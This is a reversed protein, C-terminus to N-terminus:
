SRKIYIKIGRLSPGSDGMHYGVPIDGKFLIRIIICKSGDGINSDRISITETSLSSSFTGRGLTTSLNTTLDYQIIEVTANPTLQSNELIEISGTVKFGKPIIKIANLYASKAYDHQFGMGASTFKTAGNLETIQGSGQDGSVSFDNGILLMFESNGMYGDEWESGTQSSSRKIGGLNSSNGVTIGDEDIQLRKKGGASIVVTDDGSQYMGTNTDNKFKLSPANATGESIINTGPIGQLGRPGTTGKPGTYGIRGQM